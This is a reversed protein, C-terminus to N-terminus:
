RGSVNRGAIRDTARVLAFAYTQNLKEVQKDADTTDVGGAEGNDWIRKLGRQGNPEGEQATWEATEPDAALAECMEEFTAGSRKFALGKRFAAGSRSQDRGGGPSGGSQNAPFTAKAHSILWEFDEPTVLRFAEPCDELRKATVAFYRGALYLEIAAPHKGGPEKWQGGKKDTGGLMSQVGALDSAEYQFFLKVGTLSPSVETYTQFHGVVAQAWPELTGDESRCTDLNRPGAFEGGSAPEIRWRLGSSAAV